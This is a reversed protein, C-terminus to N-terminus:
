EGLILFQLKRPTLIASEEHEQITPMNYVLGGPLIYAGKPLLTSDTTFDPNRDLFDDVWKGKRVFKIYAARLEPLISFLHSISKVKDTILQNTEPDLPDQSRIRRIVGNINGM